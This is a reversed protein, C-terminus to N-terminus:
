YRQARGTGQTHEPPQTLSSHIADMAEATSKYQAQNPPVLPAGVALTAQEWLGHDAAAQASSLKALSDALENEFVVVHGAVWYMHITNTLNRWYLQTRVRHM